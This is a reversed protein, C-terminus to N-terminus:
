IRQDIPDRQQNWVATSQYVPVPVSENPRHNVLANGLAPVLPLTTYGYTGPNVSRLAYALTNMMRQNYENRSANLKEPTM